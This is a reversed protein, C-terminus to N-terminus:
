APRNSLLQLILILFVPLVAPFGSAFIGIWAARRRRGTQFMAGIGLAIGLVGGMFFMAFTEVHMFRELYPNAGDQIKIIYSLIFMLLILNLIVGIILSAIGLGSEPLNRAAKNSRSTSVTPPTVNVSFPNADPMRFQGGCHPCYVPEGALSGDDELTSKCYPCGVLPSM